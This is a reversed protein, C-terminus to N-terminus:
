IVELVNYSCLNCTYDLDLVGHLMNADVEVWWWLVNKINRSHFSYAVFELKLNSARSVWLRVDRM